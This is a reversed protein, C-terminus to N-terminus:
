QREGTNVRETPDELALMQQADARTTFLPTSMTTVLIPMRKRGHKDMVDSIM